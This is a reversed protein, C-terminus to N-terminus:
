CSATSARGTALRCAAPRSSCSLAECCHNGEHTLLLRQLKSPVCWFPILFSAPTPSTGPQTTAAAPEFLVQTLNPVDSAIIETALRPFSSRSHTYREGHRMPVCGAWSREEATEDMGGELEGYENMNRRRPVKGMGDKKRTGSAVIVDPVPGDAVDDMVIGGNLVEEVENGGLGWVVWGGLRNVVEARALFELLRTNTGAKIESLLDANQLLQDLTREYLDASGSPSPPGSGARGNSAPVPPLANLLSDISNATKAFAYKTWFAMGPPARRPCRAGIRQPSASSDFSRARSQRITTSRAKEDDPSTSSRHM